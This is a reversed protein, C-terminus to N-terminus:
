KLTLIFKWMSKKYATTTYAYTAAIAAFEAAGFASNNTYISIAAAAASFGAYAADAAADAAAADADAAAADAAKRKVELEEKTIEGSFFKKTAELCERVRFDNPFKAEFLPLVQEACHVAFSIKQSETLDCKRILWWFFDKIPLENFLDNLTISENNICLLAEVQSLEYCGRNDILYQKTFTKKM